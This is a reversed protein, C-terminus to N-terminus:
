GKNQFFNTVIQREDFFVTCNSLVQYNEHGKGALLVFDGHRINKLVWEIAIQRDKFIYYPKNSNKFGKEADKLIQEEPETRPNDSTLVILDAFNSVIEGMKERKTRDREGPCGFLVIFRNKVFPRLTKLINKLGDPTHAYDIMIKVDKDEYILEARGAAAKCFNLAKTIDNPSFGLYAVTGWAIAANYISFEGPMRFNCFYQKNKYRIEFESNSTCLKTNSIYLDSLKRKCSVALTPQANMIRENYISKGFEDDVNIVAKKSTKFLQKKAKFYNEMTKHFDLHDQTLNSFASIEFEIGYLRMQELAHSSAEMVVYKCKENKMQMLIANLEFPEPTTYKAPIKIEGIENQVTGILGVPEKTFYELLQKILLTITTKGNTGTVAICKLNRAPNNFWEACLVAYAKRTDNVMIQCNEFKLDEQTIVFAAGREIASRAYKHGDTSFGKICVFIDNKKVNKEFCTIGHIYGKQKKQQLEKLLQEFKM